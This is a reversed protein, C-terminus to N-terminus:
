AEGGEAGGTREILGIFDRVWEDMKDAIEEAKEKSLGVQTADDFYQQRNMVLYAEREAEPKELVLMATTEVLGIVRKRMDAKDTKENMGCRVVAFHPRYRVM